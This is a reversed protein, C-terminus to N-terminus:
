QAEAQEEGVDDQDSLDLSAECYEKWAEDAAARLQQIFAELEERSHFEQTYYSDEDNALFVKGDKAWPTHPVGRYAQETM